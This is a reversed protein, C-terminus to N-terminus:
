MLIDTKMDPATAKLNQAIANIRNISANRILRATKGSQRGVNNNNHRDM